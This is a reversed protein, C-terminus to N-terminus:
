RKVKKIIREILGESNREVTMTEVAPEPMNVTINAPEQKPVSVTIHAPEQKPVNVTVQAPPVNIIPAAVHVQPVPMSKLMNEWAPPMEMQVKDLHVHNSIPSVSPVLEKSTSQAPMMNQALEMGKYFANMSMAIADSAKVDDESETAEKQVSAVPKAVVATEEPMARVVSESPEGDDSRNESAELNGTDRAGWANPFVDKDSLWDVAKANDLGIKEVAVAAADVYTKVIEAERMRDALDNRIFYFTTGSPLVHWVDENNFNLTIEKMVMEKGVSADDIVQSQGATGARQGTMPMLDLSTVLPLANAYSFSTIQWEEKINFGDPLASLPIEVLNIGDRQIFASIVAGGYAIVGEAQKKNKADLVAQEIQSQTVGTVFYLSQPRMGTVKELRFQQVAAFNRIDNYARRAACMGTGLPNNGDPADVLRIVQHAKLEHWRGLMDWYVCPIEPNGTPWCRASSLYNLGIVRSGAATSQRVVEIWWGNDRLVYDAFGRQVQGVYDYGRIITRAREKRLFPVSGDIDWSRSALKMIAIGVAQAWHSEMVTSALLNDREQSWYAQLDPLSKLVISTGGQSYGFMMRVNGNVPRSYSLEDRTISSAYLDHVFTTDGNTM